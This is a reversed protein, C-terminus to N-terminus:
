GAGEWKVGPCVLCVHPSLFCPSLFLGLLYAMNWNCFSSWLCPQVYSAWIKHLQMICFILFYVESIWPIMLLFIGWRSWTSWQTKLTQKTKRKWVASVQIARGCRLVNWDSILYRELAHWNNSVFLELSFFFYFILGSPIVEWSKGWFAFPQPALSFLGYLQICHVATSTNSALLGLWSIHKM